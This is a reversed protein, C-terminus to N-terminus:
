MLGQFEGTFHDELLGVERVQKGEVGGGVSEGEVM